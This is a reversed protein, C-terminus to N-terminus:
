LVCVYVCVRVCLEAIQIELEKDKESYRVVFSTPFDSPRYENPWFLICDHM